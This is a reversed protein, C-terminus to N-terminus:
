SAVVEQWLQKSRAKASEDSCSRAEAFLSNELLNPWHAIKAGFCTGSM